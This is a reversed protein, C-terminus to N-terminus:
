AKKEAGARTTPVAIVVAVVLMLAALVFAAGPLHWRGAGISIAFTQAFLGPGILNAVGTISANAGQLRGQESAGVRRSMLGFLSPSAFGWLALLPIGVLFTIGTAALGFAAFGAVGFVLGVLLAAREGFRAVAPGILAGQVVMACVGVAAMTFGVAREDWGYRYMMYLVAINPLSAHALQGLLHVTALGLLQRQARLLALSGLPNARRWAFSARREPPLSEPLVLLGYLTNALSLAAAIWFPLRPDVNGALGGLAPGLVFGAGFAVGLLGFRASRQEPATVDAVYAYSTAISAASIGSIVRGVFLWWLNPALAMLIYDLGLGFNSLLIMPRRGFRDSLAGHLPSVLFQMLAWATGFIGYVVAAHATDGALLDVVLKPLVPVIIGLALMDLLVTIFLFIFAARPPAISPAAAKDSDDSDSTMGFWGILENRRGYAALRM